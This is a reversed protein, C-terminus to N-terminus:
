GFGGSLVSSRRCGVTELAKAVAVARGDGRDMVIIRTSGPTVLRLNAITTATVQAAVEDAKRISCCLM